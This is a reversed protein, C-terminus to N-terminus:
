DGGAHDHARSKEERVRNCQLARNSSRRNKGTRRPVGEPRRQRLLSAGAGKCLSRALPKGISDRESKDYRHHIEDGFFADTETRGARKTQPRWISVTLFTPSDAAFLM